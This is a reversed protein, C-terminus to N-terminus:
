ALLASAVILLIGGAFLAIACPEIHRAHDEGHIPDIWCSEEIERGAPSLRDVGSRHANQGSGTPRWGIKGDTIWPRGMSPTLLYEICDSMMLHM